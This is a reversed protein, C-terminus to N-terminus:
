GQAEEGGFADRLCARLDYFVLGAVPRKGTIAVIRHEGEVVMFAAGAPSECVLQDPAGDNEAAVRAAAAWLEGAAGAVGAAPGTGAVLKGDADLVAAHTIDSSVRMLEGLAEHVEL